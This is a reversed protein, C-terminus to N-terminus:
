GITSFFGFNDRVEEGNSTISKSSVRDGSFGESQRNDRHYGGM